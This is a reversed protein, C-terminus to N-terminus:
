CSSDESERVMFSFPHKTSCKLEDASTGALTSLAMNRRKQTADITVERQFSITAATALVTASRLVEIAGVNTISNLGSLPVNDDGAVNTITFEYIANVLSSIEGQVANEHGILQISRM